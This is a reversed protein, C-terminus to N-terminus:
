EIYKADVFDYLYKKIKKYPIYNKSFTNPLLIWKDITDFKIKEEIDETEHNHVEKYECRFSKSQNGDNFNILFYKKTRDNDIIEEYEIDLNKISAINLLNKNNKIYNEIKSKINGIRNDIISFNIDYSFKKLYPNNSESYLKKLINYKFKFNKNTSGTLVNLLYNFQETHKYGCSVILNKDEFLFKLNLYFEFMITYILEIIEKFQNYDDETNLVFKYKIDESDNFDRKNEESIKKIDRKNEESLKKINKSLINYLRSFLITFIASDNTKDFIVETYRKIVISLIFHNIKKIDNIDKMKENINNIKSIIYKFNKIIGSYISNEASSPLNKIGLLTNWFNVNLNNLILKEFVNNPFNNLDENDEYGVCFYMHDFLDFIENYEDETNLLVKVFDAFNYDKNKNIDLYDIFIEDEFELNKYNPNKAMQGLLKDYSIDKKIINLIYSVVNLKPLSFNSLKPYLIDLSYNLIYLFIEFSYESTVSIYIKQILLLLKIIKNYNIYNQKNKPDSESILKYEINKNFNVINKIINNIEINKFKLNLLDFQNKRSFKRKYKSADHIESFFMTKSKVNGNESFEIYLLDSMGYAYEFSETNDFRINSNYMVLKELMQRFLYLEPTGKLAILAIKYKYKDLINEKLLDDKLKYFNKDNYKGKINFINENFVIIIPLNRIELIKNYKEFVKKNKIIDISYFKYNKIEKSLEYYKKNMNRYDNSYFNIIINDDGKNFIMNFKDEDLESWNSKAEYLIEYKKEGILKNVANNIKSGKLNNFLNKLILNIAKENINGGLLNNIKKKYKLYKIKYDM